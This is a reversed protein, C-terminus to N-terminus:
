LCLDLDFKKYKFPSYADLLGEQLSKLARNVDTGNFGKDLWTLIQYWHEQKKKIKIKM